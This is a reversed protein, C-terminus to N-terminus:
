FMRRILEPAFAVVAFHAARGATGAALFRGFTMGFTGAAISVLFFPPFGVLSSVFTLVTASRPKSELRERWRGLLPHPESRARAGARRSLWFVVSKGAMQGLTVSVVLALLLPPSAWPVASLMLVEANVWPVVASVVALVFYGGVAALQDPVVAAGPDM